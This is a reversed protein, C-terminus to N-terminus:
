TADILAIMRTLVESRMPEPLRALHTDLMRAAQWIQPGACRHDRRFYRRRQFALAATVESWTRARPRRFSHPRM